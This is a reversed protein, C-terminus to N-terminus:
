CVNGSNPVGGHDPLQAHAGCLLCSSSPAAARPAGPHASEVCVQITVTQHDKFRCLGYETELANGDADKTPYLTSTQLNERLLLSRPRAPARRMTPHLPSHGKKTPLVM